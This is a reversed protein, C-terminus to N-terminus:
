IIKSKTPAHFMSPLDLSVVGDIFLLTLLANLLVFQKFNHKISSVARKSLCARENSTKQRCELLVTSM